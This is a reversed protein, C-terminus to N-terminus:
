TPKNFSHERRFNIANSKITWSFNTITYENYGNFKRTIKKKKKTKEAISAYFLIPPLPSLSILFIYQSM